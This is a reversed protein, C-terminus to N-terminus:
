AEVDPNYEGPYLGFTWGILDLLSEPKEEVISFQLNSEKEVSEWHHKPYRMIGMRDQVPGLTNTLQHIGKNKGKLVKVFARPITEPIGAIYIREGEPTLGRAKRENINMQEFGPEKTRNILKLLRIKNGRDLPLELVSAYQYDTTINDTVLTAGAEIFFQTFTKNFNHCWLAILIRRSEMNQLGLVDDPTLEDRCCRFLLSVPVEINEVLAAATGKEFRERTLPKTDREKFNTQKHKAKAM